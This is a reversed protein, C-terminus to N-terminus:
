VALFCHLRWDGLNTLLNQFARVGWRIENAELFCSGNIKIKALCNRRKHANAMRHFYCTNRDGERLWVERSKQRWSVEEM